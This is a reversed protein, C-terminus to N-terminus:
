PTYLWMQKVTKAGALEFSYSAFTVVSAGAQSPPPLVIETSSVSVPSIPIWTQEFDLSAAAADVRVIKASFLSSEKTECRDGDEGVASASFNRIRLDCVVTPQARFGM